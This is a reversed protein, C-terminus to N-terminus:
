KIKLCESLKSLWLRELTATVMFLVRSVFLVQGPNLIRTPVTREYSWTKDRPKVTTTNGWCGKQRDQRSLRLVRLVRLVQSVWRYDRTGTRSVSGKSPVSNNACWSGDHGTSDQM